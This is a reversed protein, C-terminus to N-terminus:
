VTCVCRLRKIEVRLLRVDGLRREYSDRGKALVSALIRTKEHLLRAEEGRRM